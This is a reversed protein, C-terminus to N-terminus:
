LFHIHLHIHFAQIYMDRISPLNVFKVINLNPNRNNFSFLKELYVFNPHGLRFHWLVVENENSISLSNFISRFVYIRSPVKQLSTSEKLLYLGGCLEVNGIVKGSDMVQFECLNPYFKTACNLDHTFKSISFLNCDLNPVHLAHSLILDKTLQITGIGAVKSLSGYAIRVTSVGQNSKYHQFISIDGTMHDSAGSDVIWPKSKRIKATFTSLLTGQHATMSTHQHSATPTAQSPISIHGFLKQLADLQEKTFSGTEVFNGYNSRAAVNAHSEQDNKACNPKWDVLKGHIKWCTEKTHGLKKCHECWPRGKELKNGQNQSSSHTYLALGEVTPITSPDCIMM